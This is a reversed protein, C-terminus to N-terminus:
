ISSGQQDTRANAMAWAVVEPPSMRSLELDRLASQQEQTLRTAIQRAPVGAVIAFEPVDHTVVAGAAVVAGRGIRTCGATIISNAGIWADDEITCEGREVDDEASACGLSPNYAFAHMIPRSLPHNAGFRRVDPGISVYAGITTGADARGPELLSGYSYPGATVGHRKSLVRRLTISYLDGGETRVALRLLRKGLLPVAVMREALWGLPHRKMDWSRVTM